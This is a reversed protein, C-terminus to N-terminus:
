TTPLSAIASNLATAQSKLLMAVASDGSVGEDQLLKTYEDRLAEEGQRVSPLAGRDLNSIWDRVIVVTKNLTGQFSTDERGADGFRTLEAIQEAAHQEHLYILQSIVPRIDAQSRELMERYGKLVDNTATHVRHLANISQATM